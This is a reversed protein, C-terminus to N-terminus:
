LTITKDKCIIEKIVSGENWLSDKTLNKWGAETGQYNLKTLSTCGYFLDKPLSSISTPLYAETLSSCGEFSNEGLTKLGSEYLNLTTLSSNNKFAYEGISILNRSFTINKLNIDNEFANNEINQVGDGSGFKVEELSFVNKFSSAGINQYLSPFYLGKLSIETSSFLNDNSEKKETETISTVKGSEDKFGSPMILYTSDSPLSISSIKYATDKKEISFVNTNTKFIGKEDYVGPTQTDWSFAPNTIAKTGFRDSFHGILPVIITGLVIVSGVIAIIITNRKEKPSMKTKENSPKIENEIVEENM